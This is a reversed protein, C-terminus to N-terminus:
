LGFVGAFNRLIPAKTWILHEIPFAVTALICTTCFRKSHEKCKCFMNVSGLHGAAERITNTLPELKIGFMIETDMSVVNQAEWRSFVKTNVMQLGSIM